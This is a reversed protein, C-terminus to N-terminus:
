CGPERRAAPTEGGADEDGGGADEDGGGTDEDGGGADEIGADDGGGGADDGGGGADSDDVPLCNTGDRVFGDQCEEEPEEGGPCATLGFAALALLALEWRKTTLAYRMTQM